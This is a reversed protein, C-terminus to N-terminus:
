ENITKLQFDGCWDSKSSNNPFVFVHPFRFNEINSTRINPPFRHCEYEDYFEENCYIISFKCKDCKGM